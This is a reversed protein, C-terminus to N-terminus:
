FVKISNSLDEFDKESKEFGNESGSLVIQIFKGKHFFSTLSQLAVGDSTIIKIKDKYLTIGQANKSIKGDMYVLKDEHYENNPSDDLEKKRTEIYKETSINGYEDSRDFQYLIIVSDSHPNKFGNSFIDILNADSSAPEAIFDKGIEFSFGFNEYSITNKNEALSISPDKKIRIVFSLFGICILLLIIIFIKM